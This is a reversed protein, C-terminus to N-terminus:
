VRNRLMLEKPHPELYTQGRLYEVDLRNVHHRVLTLPVILPVLEMRYDEILTLLEDRARKDLRDSLYGLMHHLVNTHKKPTAIQKLTAMFRTEYLPRLVTRDLEAARAVLRGIEKHGAPSHAMLTLKHATHFAVLDRLEWRGRFLGRLRSYAFVREIFNERLRDDRLRGEDEVPLNPMTRLLEEAFLGRGSSIPMGAETYLRVRELGCSPSGKKLVYGSLNQSQLEIVRRTSFSRMRDTLDIEGQQVFRVGDGGKILRIPARPSGLGLEVEPCVPVWEVHRGLVDTLFGSRKHGGDYRVEAGLLCSSIGIRVRIEEMRCPYTVSHTDPAVMPTM